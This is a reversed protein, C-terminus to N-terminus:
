GKGRGQSAPLKGIERIADRNPEFGLGPTEPMTFFGDKPEPLGTYIQRCMEVALYHHEVLTGNTVGAQLHMNHFGWAGGNVISVNFANALGAIKACQSFGGSIIVNPQAYDIAQAILLDRFRFSLGENQGCALPIGSARRLQAMAQADNQTLPEEFFSIGFPKVMEALKTAHYLDLNCNADLFLEIDTGVAERVARVRAADERIVDMVPRTDRHRLAENGVTMKLKKFGQSVWLKAAAALQERDFFGFGFTAYVPVRPHAGGLLRWVPQGFAKGKIDWLAVDIAALAHAAYGTQGRPMLTWYLKDWVREHALPDDGLIAPGAVGNVIQAIVDEETIGTLGHGILGTDTEVEVFCSSLSTQRDVGVLKIHLPVNLPTATVRVIKMSAKMPAKM